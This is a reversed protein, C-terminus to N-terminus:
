LYQVGVKPSPTSCALWEAVVVGRQLSQVGVKPSPVSCSLWEAVVVRETPISGWGKPQSSFMGVM